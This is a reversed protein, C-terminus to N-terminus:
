GLTERLLTRTDEDYCVLLLHGVAHEATLRKWEDYFALTAGDGDPAARLVQPEGAEMADFMVAFRARPAERWGPHIWDQHLM